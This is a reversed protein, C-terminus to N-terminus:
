TALYTALQDLFGPWGQQHNDRNAAHRYGAQVIILLTQNGRGLFEVTLITEDEELGPFDFRCTMVLKEPRTMELYQGSEHWLQGDPAEWSVQYRGGVAGTQNSVSLAGSTM